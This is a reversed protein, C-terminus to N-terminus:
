SVTDRRDRMQDVSVGTQPHIATHQKSAGSAEPISISAM